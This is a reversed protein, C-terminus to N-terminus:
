PSESGPCPFSMADGWEFEHVEVEDPGAPLRGNPVLTVVDGPDIVIGTEPQDIPGSAVEKCAPDFLVYGTIGTTRTWYALGRTSPTIAFYYGDGEAAGTSLFLVYGTTSRNDVWVDRVVGHCGALGLAIVLVFWFKLARRQAQM